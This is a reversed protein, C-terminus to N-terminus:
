SAGGIESRVYPGMHVIRLESRHTLSVDLQRALDRDSVYSESHLQQLRGLDEESIRVMEQKIAIRRSLLQLRRVLGARQTELYRLRKEHSIRTLQIQAEVQELNEETTQLQKRRTPGYTSEVDTTLEFLV